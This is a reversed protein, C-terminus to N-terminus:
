MRRKSIRILDMCSLSMLPNKRDVTKGSETMLTETENSTDAALPSGIEMTETGIVAIM